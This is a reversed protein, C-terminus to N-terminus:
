KKANIKQNLKPCHDLILQRVAEIPVYSFIDAQRWDDGSYDAYEEWSPPITVGKPFGVEVHTYPGENSYKPLCYHTYSAQVSLTGGNELVIPQMVCFTISRDNLMDEHKFLKIMKKSRDKPSKVIEDLMKLPNIM